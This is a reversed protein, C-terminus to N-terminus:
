AAPQRRLWDRLTSLSQLVQRALQPDQISRGYNKEIALTLQLADISDLGLGEPGFLPTEEEIEEASVKLMCNEMLLAKLEELKVERV